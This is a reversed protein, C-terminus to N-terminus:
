LVLCFHHVLSECIAIQISDLLVEVFDHKIQPLSNKNIDCKVSSNDFNVFFTCWFNATVPNFAILVFNWGDSCCKIDCCLKWWIYFSRFLQWATFPLLLLLFLFYMPACIAEIADVEAQGHYLIEQLGRWIYRSSYHHSPPISFHPANQSFKRRLIYLKLVGGSCRVGGLCLHKTPHM